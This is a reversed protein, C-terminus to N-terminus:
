SPAASASADIASCASLSCRINQRASGASSARSRSSQSSRRRRDGSHDDLRERRRPHDRVRARRPRRAVAGRRRPRAADGVRRSVGSRLELDRHVHGRRAAPQRASRLGVLVARATCGLRDPRHRRGRRRLGGVGRDRPQAGGAPLDDHHDVADRADRARRRHGDGRPRRHGSECENGRRRHAIGFRVGRSRALLARKRGFRDGLAGATLLSGAFVIAYADLIWAVQSASAGLAEQMTPIATVLGSVSMVVLVLSLCMMALLFWRRAHIRPDEHLPRAPVPTVFTSNM